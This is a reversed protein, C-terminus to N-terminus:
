FRSIAFAVLAGIVLVRALRSGPTAANWTLWTLWGVLAAVVVLLAPGLPVPAFAGGLLIVVVGLVLALRPV